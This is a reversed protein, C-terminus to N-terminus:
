ARDSGEREEPIVDAANESKKRSRRNKRSFNATEPMIPLM